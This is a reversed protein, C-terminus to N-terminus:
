INKAKYFSHREHMYTLSLPSLQIEFVLEYGKYVCYVDPKRRENANVIFKNDIQISDIDVGKVYKLYEGIKNKLYKHRPSEKLRLYQILDSMDETQDKKLFCNNSNPYHSFYLKDHISPAIKLDQDCECCVFSRRGIA